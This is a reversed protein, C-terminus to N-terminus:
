RAFWDSVDRAAGRGEAIAWVVLSAGRRADGCAFVGPATTAFRGAESRLVGRADLEVGLERYLPNEEVGTFGLALLVLDARLSFPRNADRAMNVAGGADRDWSVHAGEIAVVNGNADEVFRETSRAFLRTGGEEHAPSTRFVVPWAPWPNEPAREDPPRAMLELQTVSAAGQRHATGVCDAGTDGGGLVVVHKGRADIADRRDRAVRRNADELYHMALHVSRAGRGPVDLERARGAGIALVVADFERRLQAGTVDRGVDVRTRFAVGEAELQGIRRDVRFKELKFDPIGYRLLGGLRDSREFVTVAHGERALQQACALGAPGSGIIAVRRGSATLARRPQIWGAEFAHDVIQQEIHRITVAEHRLELVCASECPAPCIRGTFEPFNNTAHLREIADRWRGRYVLDNWDPIVNGLPCGHHCFPVGCDMCRSAQARLENVDHAIEFENADGVRESAPRKRPKIREVEIFGTARGMM